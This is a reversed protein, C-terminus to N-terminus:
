SEGSHSSGLKSKRLALVGVLGHAILCEVPYVLEQYQGRWRLYVVVIMLAYAGTWLFWPLPQENSPTKWVSRLTPIFGICIGVQLILNAYTASQLQWWALSAALGFVLAATDFLGLKSLKGKALSLLFTVICMLSSVTPLLSKVWDDSMVGYSTFNLVTIFAWIGWSAINPHTKGKLIYKNYLVFAVVQIIGSVMALVVDTTVNM